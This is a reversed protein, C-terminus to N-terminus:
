KEAKFRGRLEKLYARDRKWEAFASMGNVCDKVQHCGDCVTLTYRVDWRRCKPNKHKKYCKFCYLSM